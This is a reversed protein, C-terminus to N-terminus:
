KWLEWWKKGKKNEIFKIKKNTKELIEGKIKLKKMIDMASIYENHAKKYELKKLYEDGKEINLKMSKKMEFELKLKDEYSINDKKNENIKKGIIRIKSNIEKLRKFNSIKNAFVEAQKLYDLAISHRGDKAERLAEELNREIEFESYEIEKDIYEIKENIEKLKEEEKLMELNTKIDLYLKRSELINAGRKLDAELIKNNIEDKINNINDMLNSLKIEYNSYDIKFYSKKYTDIIKKLISYQNYIDSSEEFKLEKLKNLEEIKKLFNNKILKYENEFSDIISIIKQYEIISKEFERKLIKEKLDKEKIMINEIIELEKKRIYNYKLIEEKKNRNSSTFYIYSRNLKELNKIKEDVINKISKYNKENIEVSILNNLKNDIEMINNIYYSNFFIYAILICFSLLILILYYNKFISSKYISNKNIFNIKINIYKKFSFNKRVDKDEDDFIIIDDNEKLPYPHKTYSLYYKDGELYENNSNLDLYLESERILVLNINGIYYVLFTNYDSFILMFSIKLSDNNDEIKYIHINENIKDVIKVIDKKSYEINEFDIDYFAIKIIKDFTEKNIDTNEIKFYMYIFKEEYIYEKLFIQNNEEINKNIEIKAM